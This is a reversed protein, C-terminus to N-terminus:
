SCAEETRLFAGLIQDGEDTLDTAFGSNDFLTMEGFYVCGAAEYLDVRVFRLGQALKGSLAIMEALRAPKEFTRNELVAAVTDHNIPYLNFDPDFYTYTVSHRTRDTCLLIARLVGDFYYFKYDDPPTGDAEGLYAEAMIKPVLGKYPWERGAVSYDRRMCRNLFATAAARDFGAKDPCLWVSGSDHSCKLVFRKPLADFDIQEASDWTGLLPILCAPGVRRSVYERVALKDALTHYLPNRDFLKMWQQKENFTVPPHLHLRKGTCGRYLLKLYRADDMNKLKGHTSCWRVIRCPNELVAILTKCDGGDGSRAAIRTVAILLLPIMLLTRDVYTVMGFDMLLECLAFLFTLQVASNGRMRKAGRVLAALQPVYFILLLPIGGCVALEVYNNHSYVGGSGPLFRFGDLGYGTFPRAAFAQRGVAALGQRVTLSNEHDWGLFLNEYVYRIRQLFYTDLWNFLPVDALVFAFLAWSVALFVALKLWWRKPYRMLVLTVLLIFLLVYAKTSKTLAVGLAFVIAAAFWWRNANLGRHLALAFAVSLLVGVWNPNIGLDVGFRGLELDFSRDALLIYLMLAGAALIYATFVPRMDHRLLLYQYLFFLFVFNVCLTQVVDMSAEPSLAFTKAGLLGWLIMGISFPMWYSLFLKRQVFMWGLVAAAFVLMCVRSVATHEMGVETFLWLAFLADLAYPIARRVTPKSRVNGGTHDLSKSM